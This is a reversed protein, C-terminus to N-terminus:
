RVQDDFNMLRVTTALEAQSIQRFSFRYGEYLALGYFLLDIPSFTEAVIQIVLEPDFLLALAVQAFEVNEQQAVLIAVTLLNGALCGVLALVAGLVGFRKDIGKGFFRVAIGVLFGVGIAMWGIQRDAVVSILAWLIAAVVAAVAGGLFGLLFNQEDKLRQMLSQMKFPDIESTARAELIRAATPTGPSNNASM